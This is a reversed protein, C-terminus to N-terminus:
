ILRDTVSVVRRALHELAAETTDDFDSINDHNALLSAGYPNGDAFKLPETYGPPVIIGGWHMLTVYLTLLTTEQGGHATNTSTFGAYVKDALKGQSWLGGLSDLFGRLQSAVSGFRTPSGFIVADAWVVDDGSASPLDKTAEYNATWAPNHAFSEPDATEAVHRVRVEAGASEAAKAVRQAMSTGHGTASYYIVALKTM